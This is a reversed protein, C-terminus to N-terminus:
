PHPGNPPHIQVNGAVLLGSTSLVPTAGLVAAFAFDDALRNTLVGEGHDHTTAAWEYGAVGNLTGFGEIEAINVDAHPSGPGGGGNRRCFIATIVGRFKDGSPTVVKVKGTYKGKLVKASARFRDGTELIGGGTLKCGAEDSAGAPAGHVTALTMVVGITVAALRRM